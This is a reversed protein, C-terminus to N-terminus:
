EEVTVESVMGKAVHPDGGQRDSIFCYFAYRGPELELDVVQATGGELVASDAGDPGDAFPREGLQAKLYLEADEVSAGEALRSALFHHWQSGANELLVPNTGAKLGEATFEYESATVVGETGPLEGGDEAPTVTFKTLPPRFPGEGGVVYYTGEQLEQTVTGTEGKLTPGVGGAAKFWDAVPQGVVVANAEHLVDTDSRDESAYVLQADVEDLESSNTLEIEAVGAPVEAPATFTLSQKGGTAEIAVSTAESSGGDDDGGCGAAILATAAVAVALPAMRRVLDQVRM